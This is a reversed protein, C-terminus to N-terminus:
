HLSRPVSVHSYTLALGQADFASGGCICVYVPASPHDGYTATQVSWTSHVGACEDDLGQATCHKSADSEGPLGLTFSQGPLVGTLNTFNSLGGQADPYLPTKSIKVGAQISQALAVPAFVLACACVFVLIYTPVTGFHM